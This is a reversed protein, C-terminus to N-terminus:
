SVNEKELYALEADMRAVAAIALAAIRISDVRAQEVRHRHADPGRDRLPNLGIVLRNSAKAIEHPITSVPRESDRLATHGHRTAARIREQLMAEIAAITGPELIPTPTLVTHKM